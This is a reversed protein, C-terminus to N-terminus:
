ADALVSFKQRRFTGSAGTGEGLGLHTFNPTAPRLPWEPTGHGAAHIATRVAAQAVEVVEPESDCRVTLEVDVTMASADMAVGCDGLNDNCAELELLAEMVLRASEALEEANEPGEVHFTWRVQAEINVPEGELM